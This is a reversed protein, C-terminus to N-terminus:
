PVAESAEDIARLRRLAHGVAAACQRGDLDGSAEALVDVIEDLTIFGVASVTATTGTARLHPMHRLRTREGASAVFVVACTPTRTAARVRAVAARAEAREARADGRWIWPVIGWTMVASALLWLPPMGPMRAFQVHQSERPMAPVVDLAFARAGVRRQWYGVPLAPLVHALGQAAVLNRITWPARPQLKQRSAM